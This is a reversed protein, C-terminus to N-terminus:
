GGIAEFAKNLGQSAQRFGPNLKLAKQFHKAAEEPKGQELLIFGLNTQTEPSDPNLRVAELFHHCAKEKEGQLTLAQALNGHIISSEPQFRVAKLFYKVADESKGQKLLATGLNCYTEGSQPKIALAIKFHRVANDFDGKIGLVIGMNNHAGFMNPELRLAERLQVIADDYKGQRLLANGLNNRAVAFDPKIRLAETFERIAEMRDGRDNILAGLNTRARYNLPSKSVVDAWLVLPDQWIQNRLYTATGLAAIGMTLFLVAWGRRSALLDFVLYVVSVAFGFVPLYLRHEFMVDSIPFISSEISLAIFFWFIGFSVVPKKKVNWIGFLIISIVFIFALPTFGDFFGTKLPYMHDLNQGVPFFLLRIYQVLVSFQTCFYSWRDVTRTERTLISVDELLNEFRFGRMSSFFYLVIFALFLGMPALWILKKKWGRWSRDFLFYEVMLIACPLTVAIEKSLFAGVGSIFSFFYYILIDPSFISHTQDAKRQISKRGQVEDQRSDEVNLQHKRAQIYFLVSVMYFMASMSAYRQVIYTVAQTQIPHAVFILAVWLSMLPVTSASFDTGQLKKTSPDSKGLRKKGTRYYEAASPPVCRESQLFSLRGFVNLALFYALIGNTMHILINVLHFGFPNLRGLRYNLAFSFEVLPRYCRFGKLSVYNKLDRIKEKEEIQTKGDFVFPGWYTNSYIVLTIGAILILAVLPNAFVGSTSKFKM